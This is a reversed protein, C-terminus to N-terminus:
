DTNQVTSTQETNVMGFNFRYNGDQDALILDDLNLFHLFRSFDCHCGELM